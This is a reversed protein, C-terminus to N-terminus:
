FGYIRSRLSPMREWNVVRGGSGDFPDAGGNLNQLVYQRFRWAANEAQERAYAEAALQEPTPAAPEPQKVEEEDVTPRMWRLAWDAIKGPWYRAERKAETKANEDTM